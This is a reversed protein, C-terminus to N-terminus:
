EEYEQQELYYGYEDKRNYEKASLTVEGGLEELGLGSQINLVMSGDENSVYSGECYSEGEKSMSFRRDELFRFEIEKDGITGKPNGLAVSVEGYNIEISLSENNWTSYVFYRADLDSVSIKRKSLVTQYKGTESMSYMGGDQKIKLQNGYCSYLYFDLEPRWDNGRVYFNSLHPNFGGAAIRSEGTETTYQCVGDDLNKGQVIFSIRGDESYWVVNKELRNEIARQDFNLQCSFLCSSLLPILILVFRKKFTQSYM